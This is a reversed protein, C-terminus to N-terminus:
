VKAGHSNELYYKGIVVSHRGLEFALITQVPALLIDNETARKM